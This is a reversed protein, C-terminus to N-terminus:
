RDDAHVEYEKTIQGADKTGRDFAPVYFTGIGDPRGFLLSLRGTEPNIEGSYTRFSGPVRHWAVPEGGASASGALAKKGGPTKSVDIQIIHHARFSEDRKLKSAAKRAKRSYSRAKLPPGADCEVVEANKCHSIALAMFVPMMSGVIHTRMHDFGLEATTSRPMAFHYPHAGDVIPIAKGQGNVVWSMGSYQDSINFGDLTLFIISRFLWRAAEPLRRGSFARAQEEDFRDWSRVYIGRAIRSVDLTTLGLEKRLMAEYDLIEDGQRAALPNPFEFWMIPFRPAINHFEDPTFDDRHHNFYMDAVDGIRFPVAAKMHRPKFKMPPMGYTLDNAIRRYCSYPQHLLVDYFM